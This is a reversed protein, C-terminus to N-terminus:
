SGYLLKVIPKGGLIALLVGKLDAQPINVKVNVGSPLCDKAKLERHQRDLQSFLRKGLADEDRGPQQLKVIGFVVNQYKIRPRDPVAAEHVADGVGDRHGVEAEKFHPAVGGHIHVSRVAVPLPEEVAAQGGHVVDVFPALVPGLGGFFEHSIGKLREGTLLGQRVDVM